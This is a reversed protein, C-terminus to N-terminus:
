SSATSMENILARERNVRLEVLILKKIASCSSMLAKCPVFSSFCQYRRGFKASSIKATMWIQVGTLFLFNRRKQLLKWSSQAAEWGQKVVSRGKHVRNYKLKEENRCTSLSFVLKFTSRKGTKPLRVARNVILRVRRIGKPSHNTGRRGSSFCDVVATPENNERAARPLHRAGTFGIKLGGGQSKTKFNNRSPTNQPNGLIFISALHAM